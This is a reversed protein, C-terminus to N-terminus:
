YSRLTTPSMIAWESKAEAPIINLVNSSESLVQQIGTDPELQQRLLGTMVYASVFGDLANLGNWPSEAVHAPVSLTILIKGV